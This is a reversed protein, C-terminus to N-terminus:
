LREQVLRDGRKALYVDQDIARSTGLSRRRDIKRLFVPVCDHIRVQCAGQSGALHETTWMISLFYPRMMLM